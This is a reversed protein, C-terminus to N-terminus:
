TENYKNKNDLDISNKGRRRIWIVFIVIYIIWCIISVILGIKMGPPTYKMEVTHVGSVAEIGIFANAIKIPEVERGDLKVKWGEDYPISTFILQDNSLSIEGSLYGDKIENVKMANLMLNARLRTLADRNMTSVYSTITGESSYTENFAMRLSVVDGEKIEGLDMM